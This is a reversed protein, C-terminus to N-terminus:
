ASMCAESIVNSITDGNVQLRQTDFGVTIHSQFVVSYYLLISSQHIQLNITGGCVQLRQTDYGGTIYMEYEAIIPLEEERNEDGSITINVLEINPEGWGPLYRTNDLFLQIM